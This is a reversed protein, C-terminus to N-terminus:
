FRYLFFFVFSQFLKTFIVSCFQDSTLLKISCISPTLVIFVGRLSLGLVEQISSMATRVNMQIYSIKILNTGFIQVLLRRAVTGVVSM